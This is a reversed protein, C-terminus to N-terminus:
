QLDMNKLGDWYLKMDIKWKRDSDGAVKCLAWMILFGIISIIAITKM